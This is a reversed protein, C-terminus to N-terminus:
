KDDLTFITLSSNKEIKKMIKNNNNNKKEKPSLKSKETDKSVKKGKYARLGYVSDYRLLKKQFIFSEYKGLGKKIITEIIKEIQIHIQLTQSLDTFKMKEKLLFYMEDKKKKYKNNWFCLYIKLIDFTNIKRQKIIDNNLKNKYTLNNHSFTKREVNNIFKIPRFKVRKYNSKRRSTPSLGESEDYSLYKPKYDFLVNIIEIDMYRLQPFYLFIYVIVCQVCFIGSINAGIEQIKIYRRQIKEKTMASCVYITSLTKSEKNILNLDNFSHELKIVKKKKFIDFIYNENSTFDLVGFYTYIHKNLNSDLKFYVSTLDTQIPYSYNESNISNTSYFIQLWADQVKENIIDESKCIISSDSSNQCKSIYIALSAYFDDSYRGGITINNSYSFCYHLSIDNGNFNDEQNIKKYIDKYKTCNVVDLKNNSSLIKGNKRYVINYTPNLTIITPDNLPSHKSDRVFISFLLQESNLTINKGQNLDIKTYSITPERRLFLRILNLVLIIGCMINIILSLFVSIFTHQRKEGKFEHTFVLYFYDQFKLIEYVKKMINNLKLKKNILKM